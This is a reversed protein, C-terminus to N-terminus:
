NHQLSPKWRLTKQEFRSEHLIIEMDFCIEEQVGPHTIDKRLFTQWENYLSRIKTCLIM